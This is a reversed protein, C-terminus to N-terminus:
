PVANITIAIDGAAPTGDAAKIKCKLEMQMVPKVEAVEIFVTKKDASLKVSKVPVIDKGEKAPNQVSYEKSGYKDSWLYNWQEIGYNQDDGASAADLPADFTLEIGNKKVHFAVPMNAPKGTYRVRQLNGDKGASTQWGKLGCCYLQGDKPNFRARMVGSAFTFPFKVTGGQMVGNVEENLVLLLTCKGYSMHLMHNQLPGWKDSTVWVQGGSSNDWTYPIWCLPQEWKAPIKDKDKNKFDWKRPDGPFGYEAGKKVWSIKSSPIWYGQNDSCTIEDNPGIGMGNPARFGTAFTETKSGDASVKLMCNHNPYGADVQNGGKVFYFNGAKDTQLDFSFAHYSPHVVVDNNFNEYFDAEGDSNLDRLRTIQDRGLVYVDDKVIRLGLPEFLGAAYRKWKLDELKDDIGSVIWVDGNLTSVAARGDSFFDMGSARMWASWPNEEPLTLTDLVYSGEEKGLTGKTTLVESWRPAAGKCLESIDATKISAAAAKLKDDSADAGGIAVTFQAPASLAPLTIVIRGADTKQAAGAPLGAAVAHPGEDAILLTLPGKSGAIRITRTFVGDHFGPTELIEADGVTYAFVVNAGYLYLGKYHGREAPLPGLSGPRPDSFDSGLAWGPGNKTNFVVTGAASACDSGKLDGLNTKSVDVFGGTWGAGIRLTDCDFCLAAGDGLKVSIGKAVLSGKGTGAKIAYSLFPGYDMKTGKTVKPKAEGAFVFSLTLLLLSLMLLPSRM